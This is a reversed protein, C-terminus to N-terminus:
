TLHCKDSIDRRCWGGEWRIRDVASYAQAKALEITDGMATVGLVRGGTNLVEGNKLTTGAHFVKVDPLSDADELGSIVRGKAYNGPYGESAMVVCVSPRPDWELGELEALRGSAALSLVQALDSRLRMLVPQTEPDGFRVNFELVKPGNTTLMIGAYLVGSFPCGELKMAHVAPILVREIVEDMVRDTVLPAPCYAGMGGTNPGRDGDFARKHDQAADLPIITDGDVIALISAEQGEMCEEIIIQRGADGFTRDQLITKAAARGEARNRCVFVGKGSALGDAKIVLPGEENQDIYNVAEELRSFAQFDATPISAKKMLKKAFVKSGELRAAAASPGFVAIGARRLEDALGAVLPGEPGVVVLDIKSERAFHLLRSTDEAAINVNEASAATGANGPACYIKDVGASQSLKWVLAHERGGSGVVLIKM